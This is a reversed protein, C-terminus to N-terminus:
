KSYIQVAIFIRQSFHFCHLTLSSNLLTTSILFDLSSMIWLVLPSITEQYSSFPKYSSIIEVPLFIIPVFATPTCIESCSLSFIHIQKNEWHFTSLVVASLSFLYLYVPYKFFAFDAFNVNWSALFLFNM